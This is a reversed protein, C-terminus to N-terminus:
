ISTLAPAFSLQTSPQTSPQETGGSFSVAKREDSREEGGSAGREKSRACMAAPAELRRENAKETELTGKGEEKGVHLQHDVLESSVTVLRSLVLADRVGKVKSSGILPYREIVLIIGVVEATKGLVIDLPGFLVGPVAQAFRCCRM